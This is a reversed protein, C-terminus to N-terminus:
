ILRSKSEVLQQSRKSNGIMEQNFLFDHTHAFLGWHIYRIM